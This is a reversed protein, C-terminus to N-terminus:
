SAPASGTSSSAKVRRFPRVYMSCTRSRPRFMSVKQLRMLKKKATPLSMNLSTAFNRAARTSQHSILAAAPTHWGCARARRICQWVEPAASLAWAGSLLTTRVVNCASPATNPPVWDNCVFLQSSARLKGLSSAANSAQWVWRMKCSSDPTQSTM